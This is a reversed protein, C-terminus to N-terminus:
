RRLFGFKGVGKRMEEEFDIYCKDFEDFEVRCKEFEKSESYYDKLQRIQYWGADWATIYLGLTDKHKNIKIKIDHKRFEFTNILLNTARDRVEKAKNSLNLKSDQLLTYVYRESKGTTDQKIDQYVDNNGEYRRNALKIMRERSEWFWQNYINQTIGQFVINRLSSQNSASNFLSYIIADDNWQSYDNHQENPPFYEDYYNECNIYENTITRRATFLACCKRFNDPTVSLGNDERGSVIFVYKNNGGVANSDIVLYGFHDNPCKGCHKDIIVLGSSTFPISITNSKKKGQRVWDSASKKGDMNYLLKDGFSAIPTDSHGSSKKITVPWEIKKDKGKEWISFMVNWDDNVGSFESAPFMMGKVFSYKSLWIKRCSEFGSGTLFLPPSFTAIIDANLAAMKCFFQIYKQQKAKGWDKMISHVGTNKAVDTSYNDIKNDWTAATKFPPNILFLIKKKHEPDHIAKVLGESEPKSRLLYGLEMDEEGSCKGLFDYQFKKSNLNFGAKIGLQLQDEFLTSCYLEKFERGRTLNGTGWAPDWVIYDQTWDQKRKSFVEDLMKYAEEVWRIPTFYEGNWRREFEEILQDNSSIMEERESPTWLEIRNKFNNFKDGDVDIIYDGSLHLKNRDFNTIYINNDGIIVSSFIAALDRTKKNIDKKKNKYYPDTIICDCFFEFIGDRNNMTVLKRYKNGQNLTLIIQRMEDFDFDCKSLSMLHYNNNIQEDNCLDNVVNEYIKYANCAAIKWDINNKTTYEETMYKEFLVSGICFCHHQNGIFILNPCIGNFNKLYFLCQILVDCREKSNNFDGGDKYELLMNLNLNKSILVRDWSAGQKSPFIADHFLERLLNPYEGVLIEHDTANQIRNVIEKVKNKNIPKLNDEEKVTEIPKVVEGVSDVVVVEPKSQIMIQSTTKDQSQDETKNIISDTSISYEEKM